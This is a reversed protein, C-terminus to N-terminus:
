RNYISGTASASYPDEVTPLKVNPPKRIDIGLRALYEETNQVSTQSMRDDGEYHHQSGSAQSPM